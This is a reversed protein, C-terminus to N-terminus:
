STLVMAFFVGEESRSKPASSRLAVSASRSKPASSVGAAFASSGAPTFGDLAPPPRPLTLGVGATSAGAMGADSGMPPSRGLAIALAPVFVTSM